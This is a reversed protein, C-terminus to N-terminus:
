TIVVDPLAIVSISGDKIVVVVGCPKEYGSQINKKMLIKSTLAIGVVLIVNNNTM